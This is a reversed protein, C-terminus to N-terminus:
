GGSTVMAGGDSETSNTSTSTSTSTDDESGTSTRGGSAHIGGGDGGSVHVCEDISLERMGDNM